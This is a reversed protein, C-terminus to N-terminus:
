GSSIFSDIFSDIYPTVLEYRRLNNNMNEVSMTWIIMDTIFSGLNWDFEICGLGDNNEAM